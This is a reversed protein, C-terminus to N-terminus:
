SQDSAARRRLVHEAAVLRARQLHLLALVVEDSRGMIVAGVQDLFSDWDAGQGDPTELMDLTALIAEAEAWVAPDDSAFATATGLLAFAGRKEADTLDSELISRAMEQDYRPAGCERYIAVLREATPLPYDRDM